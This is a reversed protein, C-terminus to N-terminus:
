ALGREPTGRTGYNAVCAVHGCECGSDPRAKGHEVDAAEVTHAACWESCTGASVLDNCGCAINICQHRPAPPPDISLSV